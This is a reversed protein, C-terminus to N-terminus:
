LICKVNPIETNASAQLLLTVSELSNLDCAYFLATRGGQFNFSLTVLWVIITTNACFLQWMMLFINGYGRSLAGM